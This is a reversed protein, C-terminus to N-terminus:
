HYDEPLNVDRTTRDNNLVDVQRRLRAALAPAVGGREGNEFLHKLGKHRFSKIVPKITVKHTVNWLLHQTSGTM